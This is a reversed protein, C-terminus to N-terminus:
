ASGLIHPSHGKGRVVLLDDSAGSIFGGPELISQHICICQGPHSGSPIHTKTHKKGSLLLGM